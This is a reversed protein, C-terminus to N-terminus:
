RIGRGGNNEELRLGGGLSSQEQSVGKDDVAGDIDLDVGFVRREDRTNGSRALGDSLAAANLVLLEGRGVVLAAGGGSDRRHNGSAVDHSGLSHLLSASVITHELCSSDRGTSMGEKCLLMMQGVLKAGARLLELLLHQSDVLRVHAAM